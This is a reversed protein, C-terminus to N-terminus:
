LKKYVELTEKATREWTFERARELGRQILTNRLNENDLVKIIAEAFGDVDLPDVMIGANGVVEPLSSTNSTVVPTGCAMAELPPLGFGEYLSPFVFVDASNYFYPLEHEPVYGVFKANLDLDKILKKLIHRESHWGPDGVKIFMIDSFEKKVLNLAKLLTSLNKRADEAGVYLINKCQKNLEYKELFKQPVHMPHFINHDVGNYIVDIEDKPYDICEIIDKKTSESIAIIRDAKELGKVIFKYKLRADYNGHKKSRLVKLILLDYCQVVTNKFNFFALLFADEQSSLHKISDKRCKFYVALPYQVSIGFYKGFLTETIPTYGVIKVNISADFLNLLNDIYKRFSIVGRSGVLFDIKM